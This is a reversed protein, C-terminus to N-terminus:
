NKVTQIVRRAAYYDREGGNLISPILYISNFGIDKYKKILQVAIDVGSRGRRLDRTVWEPITGFSKGGEVMIQVGCFLPAEITENYLREYEEIFGLLRNPDFLAQVFFFQVGAKLKRRTLELESTLSNGLDITAGPCLNTPYDLKRGKFDLGTNMRHISKIIQSPRSGSIPEIKLLENKTFADGAVVVVNELGHLALGLLLSQFALENMDRTTLTFVPETCTNQKLWLAALAPHVRPSKGPNYAFSVFDAGIDSCLYLEEVSYGRPPSFDCIVLTANPNQIRKQVVTSM